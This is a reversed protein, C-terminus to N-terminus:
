DLRVDVIDVDADEIGIRAIVAAADVHEAGGADVALDADEGALHPTHQRRVEM